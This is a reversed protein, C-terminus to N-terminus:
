KIMERGFQSSRLIVIVLGAVAAAFPHPIFLLICNLFSERVMKKMREAAEMTLSRRNTLLVEEEGGGRVRLSDTVFKHREGDFVHPSVGDERTDSVGMCCGLEETTAVRVLM